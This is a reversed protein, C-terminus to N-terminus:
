CQKTRCDEVVDQWKRGGHEEEEEVSFSITAQHVLKEDADVQNEAQSSRNDRHQLLNLYLDSKALFFFFLRLTRSPTQRPTNQLLMLRAWAQQLGGDDSEVGGEQGPRGHAVLRTLWTKVKWFVNSAEATSEAM